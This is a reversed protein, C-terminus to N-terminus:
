VPMQVSCIWRHIQKMIYSQGSFGDQLSRLMSSIQLHFFVSTFIAQAKKASISSRYPSCIWKKSQDSCMTFASRVNMADHRQHPHHNRGHWAWCSFASSARPMSSGSGVLFGPLFLLLFLGKIFDAAVKEHLDTFPM